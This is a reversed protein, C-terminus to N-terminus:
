DRTIECKVGGIKCAIKILVAAINMRIKFQSLGTVKISVIMNKTVDKISVSTKMKKCPRCNTYIGCCCKKLKAM